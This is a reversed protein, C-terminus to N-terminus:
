EIEHEFISDLEEFQLYKEVIEGLEQKDLLSYSILSEHV